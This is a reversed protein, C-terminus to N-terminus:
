KKKRPLPKAAVPAAAEQKATESPAASEANWQKQIVKVRNAVSDSMQAGAAIWYSLRDREVTLTNADKSPNYGGIHEIFRGDRPSRSDQVVLRFYPRKKSGHRAFRIVTAM